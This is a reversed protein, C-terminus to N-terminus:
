SATWEYEEQKGFGHVELAGKKSLKVSAFANNRKGSGEVMAAIVCYHIGEIEKYSNAHSHGQFVALTKGSDELVQRVDKANKIGHNNTTDLRQHVFVITQKKTQSLDKALWDIQQKPINSDTWKFNNRQYPKGDERFCADLVVFHYGGADFSFASKEQEVGKLYESKTLNHVCHNGLVYYKKGPLKALEAVVKDLHGKEEELADASDIIDGLSVVFEPKETEFETAAVRLKALSERYYRSGSEKKDAYHLDTVLGFTFQASEGEVGCLSQIPGDDTQGDRIQGHGLEGCVLTAGTSLLILTGNRLFARRSYEITGNSTDSVALVGISRRSVFIARGQIRAAVFLGKL